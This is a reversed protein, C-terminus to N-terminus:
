VIIGCHTLAKKGIDTRFHMGKFKIASVAKYTKKIALGINDGLGTVGLVRGGDTVFKEHAGESVSKTGAHFVVVDNMSGLKDLGEIDKGKEYKGPYGGSSL